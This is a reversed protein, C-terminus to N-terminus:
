NGLHKMYMSLLIPINWLLTFLIKEKLSIEKSKLYEWKTENLYEKIMERSVNELNTNMLNYRTTLLRRYFKKLVLSRKKYDEKRTNKLMNYNVKLIELIRQNNNESEHVISGERQYYFYLEEKIYIANHIRLYVKYNYDNDECVLFSDFFLGDVIEKKYLKNWVVGYSWRDYDPGFLLSEILFIENTIKQKEVYKHIEGYTNESLSYTKKFDFIAMDYGEIISDYLIELAKVHLYDDGDIFFIYDGKAADIGSNRAGCLGTNKQHIVHFRSDKQCFVDCIDGSSDTSGDDVMIVEFDKFSQNAISRLCNPLYEEVNYVPVIVSIM